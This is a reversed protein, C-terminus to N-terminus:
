ASGAPPNKWSWTQYTSFDRPAAPYTSSQVREIPPSPPIPVSQPTYPNSAQCAALALCSLLLATRLPM